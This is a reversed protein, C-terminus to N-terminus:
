LPKGGLPCYAFSNRNRYISAYNFQKNSYLTVSYSCSPFFKQFGATTSSDDDRADCEEDNPDTSLKGASGVATMSTNANAADPNTMEGKM